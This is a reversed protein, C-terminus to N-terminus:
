TVNQNEEEKRDEEDLYFTIMKTVFAYIGTVFLIAYEADQIFVFNVEDLRKGYSATFLSVCSILIFTPFFTFMFGAILKPISKTSLHYDVTLSSVIATSFFLLAGGMFLEEIRFTVAIVLFSTWFILWVQLLGFFATLISWLFSKGILPFLKSKM